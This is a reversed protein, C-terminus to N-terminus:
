PLLSDSVGPVPDTLGGTTDGTTNGTPDQLADGPHQLLEGVTGPLPDSTPLAAGGPLPGTTPGVPGTVPGTVPAILAGLPDGSPQPVAPDGTTPAAGDASGTGGPQRATGGPPRGPGTTSARPGPAAPAQPRALPHLTFSRAVAPATGSAVGAFVGPIEHIGTGGCGPCTRQAAADIEFLARAAAMLEARAEVPVVPELQTLRRLSTADFDRLRAVSSEHAHEAYDALLLASAARAQTAFADLTDAVALVDPQDQDRSLTSVEGLRTAADTLLLQGKAHDDVRLDARLDEITRKVPYLAEGPLADQAAVAMSTTAGVLALAGVLATVRRDRRRQAPPLTLRATQADPVPPGPTPVLLTDAATLLEARLDRVFAPRAEVPPTARLAAVLELLEGQGTSTTAADPRELLAAFQEARRRGAFVATM